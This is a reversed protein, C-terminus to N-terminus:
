NGGSRSRERRRRKGYRGLAIAASPQRRGPVSRRRLLGLTNNKTRLAGGAILFSCRLVGGLGLYFSKKSAGVKGQNSVGKRAGQGALQQLQAQRSFLLLLENM